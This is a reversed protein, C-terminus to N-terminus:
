VVFQFYIALSSLPIHLVAWWIGRFNNKVFQPLVWLLVVECSWQIGTSLVLDRDWIKWARYNSYKESKHVRWTRALQCCWARWSGLLQSSFIWIIYICIVVHSIISAPFEFSLWLNLEYFELHLCSMDNPIESFLDNVEWM